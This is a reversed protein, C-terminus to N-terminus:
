GPRLTGFVEAPDCAVAVIDPSMGNGEVAYAWPVHELKMVMDDLDASFGICAPLLAGISPWMVCGHHNGHFTIATHDHHLLLYLRVGLLHHPIDNRAKGLSRLRSRTGQLLIADQVVCLDSNGD